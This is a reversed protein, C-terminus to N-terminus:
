KVRTVIYRGKISALAEVTIPGSRRVMTPQNSNQWGATYNWEETFLGGCAEIPFNDLGDTGSAVTPSTFTGSGYFAGSFSFQNHVIPLPASHKIKFNGCSEVGIYIAFAAVNAGDATVYFEDGDQSAWFGPTPGASPTVPNVQVLPLYTKHNQEVLGACTYIRVDDIFWGYDNITNLTSNTGIRFRFRVSQGQLTSLNLRSSIYGNSEGVFAQRGNLPNSGSSISGNYGNAEFLPGADQWSTGGDTSYEVV